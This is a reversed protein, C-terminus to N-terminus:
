GVGKRTFWDSRAPRASSEAATRMRELSRRLIRSVGMQSIGVRRGIERQSLEDHFRLLVIEREYPKLTGLM